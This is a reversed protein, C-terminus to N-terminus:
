GMVSILEGGWSIALPLIQRIQVLLNLDEMSFFCAKRVKRFVKKVDFLHIKMAKLFLNESEVEINRQFTVCISRLCKDIEGRLHPQECRINHVTKSRYWIIEDVFLWLRHIWPITETARDGHGKSPVCGGTNHLLLRMTEAFVLEQFRSQTEVTLFHQHTLCQTNQALRRLCNVRLRLM